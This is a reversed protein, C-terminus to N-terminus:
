NLDKLGNVVVDKRLDYDPFSELQDAANQFAEKAQEFNGLVKYANALRIWGDVDQPEEKLREALRDVMSQIFANRDEPSMEQAAVVDEATPGPTGTDMAAFQGPLIPQYGLTQGIRNAQYVYAEMWPEFGDAAKLRELLLEYAGSIQGRQELAIAKYYSGAPNMADLSLAMDVAAEARPTVVGNDAQILAESLMSFTASTADKRKSVISFANAADEFDGLDFYTRGLLMWGESSGGNPESNLREVLQKTLLQVQAREAREAQRDAFALSSIEPSGYVAYYSFAFVPIALAGVILGFRGGRSEVKAVSSAKRAASLIRKKVELTAAEAEPESIVNRELDRQIEQLQDILIADTGDRDPTIRRSSFLFPLFVLSSAIIALAMLWIFM